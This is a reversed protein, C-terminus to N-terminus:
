TSSQVSDLALSTQSDKDLLGRTIGVWKRKMLFNIIPETIEFIEDSHPLSKFGTERLEDKLPRESGRLTGAEDGLYEWDQKEHRKRRNEFDASHGIKIWNFKKHRFSYVRELETANRHKEQKELHELIQNLLMNNHRNQYFLTLFMQHTEGAELKRRFSETDMLEKAPPDIVDLENDQDSAKYVKHEPRAPEDTGNKM